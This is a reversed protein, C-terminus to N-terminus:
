SHPMKQTHVHAQILHHHNTSDELDVSNSYNDAVPHVPHVPHMREVLGVLRINYDVVLNHAVLRINYDLRIYGLHNCDLIDVLHIGVLSDVLIHVVVVVLRICDSNCCCDCNCDVLDLDVVFDCDFGVEVVVVLLMVLRQLLRWM